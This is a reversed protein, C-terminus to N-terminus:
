PHGEPLSSSVFAVALVQLSGQLIETHGTVVGSTVANTVMHNSLYVSVQVATGRRHFPFVKGVFHLYPEPQVKPKMLCGM